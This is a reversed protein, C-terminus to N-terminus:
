KKQHNAYLKDFNDIYYMMKEYDEDWEDYGPLGKKNEINYNEQLYKGLFSSFKKIGNWNMHSGDAYDTQFDIGIEDVMENMFLFPTDIQNFYTKMGKLYSLYDRDPQGLPTKIFLCECNHEKCAALIKNIWDVTLESLPADELNDPMEFHELPYPRMYIFAGKLLNHRYPSYLFDNQGLTKWRNHYTILPFYMELRDASTRNWIAQFKYIDNKIHDFAWHAQNTEITKQAGSDLVDIVVVKPSQTKFMELLYYYSTGLEQADSSFDYSTIGYQDWIVNPNINCHINSSGIFVVDLSNKQESYFGDQKDSLMYPSILINVNEGAVPYEKLTFIDTLLNWLFLAGCLFLILKIFVKKEM